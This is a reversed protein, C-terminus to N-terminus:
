IVMDTLHPDGKAGHLLEVVDEHGYCAAGHLATQGCQTHTHTHTHTHTDDHM